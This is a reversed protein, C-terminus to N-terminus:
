STLDLAQRVTRAVGAFVQSTANERDTAVLPRGADAGKRLDMDLPIEGLFAVRLREAEARAGGRGFIPIPDGTSPDPFFAMNEIMGLVPTGVKEFMRVGRRADALAVEQPTSVIVAGDLVTRQVLTLQVDGTGPPL